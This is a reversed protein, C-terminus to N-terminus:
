SIMYRITYVFSPYSWVMDWLDDLSLGFRIALAFVNIVEGSNHGLLHAGLVLRTDPDYLIKYGAEKEGIRKFEAWKSSDGEFKEYRIGQRPADPELLGVAALSPSTFLVSPTGAYNVTRSNGGIINEAAVEAEKNAVPTLPYARSVVDGAAYVDPNSVSQMYDNVAVGGGSTEINGARPDLPEVAPVRGAGHVVMDGEFTEGGARVKFVNGQKEVATVPKECHVAMGRSQLSDMLRRALDPDFAKLARESRHLITTKAGGMMAAYAFEFSIYGGGIFIIHGPLERLQLFEDSSSVHEEGDIGLPTPEAGAAIFIKGAELIREGVRLSNPGTFVAKGHFTDVGKRDLSNEVAEPVPETFSKKFDQLKGWDLDVRGSVGRDIMCRLRDVADAADAFVKKPECGRLPCTGGYPRHDAIAVSLGADALKGAAIGGAPGTGIVAADYREAM